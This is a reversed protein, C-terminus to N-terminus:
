RHNLETKMKEHETRESIIFRPRHKVELYTKGIYQGIVGTCILQIGGIFCVLCVMSSWGSVTKGAIQRIVAYIIGVFSLVSVFLGLSMILNLPKTTLSTIGDWALHIMKGIPYHTKGAIRENRDYYVCTSKFGVLPFMGRLYINVEHFDSFAALVDSSILRYDAHNYVVDAGLWHLVKYYTQATVRKLVSDKKRSKRVGYVVQAGNHYAEVMVQMCAIDDQGDCDATILIDAKGKVEMMGAVLANQHGRNRSQSIGQYHEDTEALQSIIEWTRDRSGDNVFLIVSEKSIMHNQIMTTLQRLFLPATIPLVDEENYCPVIIYLVPEKM